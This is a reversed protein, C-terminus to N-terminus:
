FVEIGCGPYLMFWPSKRGREEIWVRQSKGIERVLRRPVISRGGPTCIGEVMVLCAVEM